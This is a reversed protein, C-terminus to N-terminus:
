SFKVLQADIERRVALLALTDFFTSLGDHGRVSCNTFCVDPNTMTMIEIKGRSAQGVVDIERMMGVLRPSGLLPLGHKKQLDDAVGTIHKVMLEAAAENVTVIVVFHGGGARILAKNILGHRSKTLAGLDDVNVAASTGPTGKAGCLRDAASLLDAAMLPPGDPDIGGVKLLVKRLAIGMSAHEYRLHAEKSDAPLGDRFFRDAASLMVDVSCPETDSRLAGVQLLLKRLANELSANGRKLRALEHPPLQTASFTAAVFDGAMGILDDISMMEDATIVGVHRLVRHLANVVDATRVGSKATVARKMDASFRWVENLVDDFEATAPVDVGLHHLLRRLEGAIEGTRHDNKGVAEGVPRFVVMARGDVDPGGEIMAAGCAAMDRMLQSEADTEAIALVDGRKNAGFVSKM